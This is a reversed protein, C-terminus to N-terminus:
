PGSRPQTQGVLLEFHCVHPHHGLLISVVVVQHQPGLRSWTREGRARISTGSEWAQAKFFAEKSHSDQCTPRAKIPLGCEEFLALIRDGVSDSESIDIATLFM